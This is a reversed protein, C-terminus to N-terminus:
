NIRYKTDDMGTFNSAYLSANIGAQFNENSLKDGFLLILLAQANAIQISSFLIVLILLTKKM